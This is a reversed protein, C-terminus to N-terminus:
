PTAAGRTTSARVILEPPFRVPKSSGSKIHQLATRIMAPLPQRITTLPPHALRALALDDFGTVAFDEPVRCGAEALGSLVGLAVADSSAIIATPRHAHRRRLLARAGSIGAELVDAHPLHIQTSQLRIRHRALAHRALEARRIHIPQRAGVFAVAKHGRRILHDVLLTLGRAEDVQIDVIGRAGPGSGVRLVPTRRALFPRTWALDGGGLVLLAALDHQLMADIDPLSAKRETFGAITLAFGAAHSQRVVEATIAGFFPDELDVAVLGLLPAGAGRLQRAAANPTYGLEVAKRRIARVTEANAGIVHAKGGLVRSVLSPSYGLARAIDKQTARV